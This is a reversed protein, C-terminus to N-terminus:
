DDEGDDLPDRPYIGVGTIPIPTAVVTPPDGDDELRSLLYDMLIRIGRSDKGLIFADRIVEITEKPPFLSSEVGYWTKKCFECVVTPSEETHHLHINSNFDYPGGTVRTSLKFSHGLRNKLAPAIFETPVNVTPVFSSAVDRVRPHECLIKEHHGCVCDNDTPNRM